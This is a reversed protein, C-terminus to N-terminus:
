PTKPITVQMLGWGYESGPSEWFTNTAMLRDFITDRNLPVPHGNEELYRNITAQDLKDDSYLLNEEETANSEITNTILIDPDLDIENSVYRAITEKHISAAANHRYPEHILTDSSTFRVPVWFQTPNDLGNGYIKILALDIEANPPLLSYIRQRETRSLFDRTDDREFPAWDIIRTGEAFSGNTLSDYNFDGIPLAAYYAYGNKLAMDTYQQRADHNVPYNPYHLRMLNRFTLPDRCLRAFKADVMCANIVAKPDSHQLIVFLPDKGLTAFTLNPYQREHLIATNVIIVPVKGVVVYSKIKLADFDRQDKGYTLGNIATFMPYTKRTPVISLHNALINQGATTNAFEDVTQGFNSALERLAEDTPAIIMTLSNENTVLKFQPITELLGAFISSGNEALDRGITTM